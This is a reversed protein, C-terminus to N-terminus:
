YYVMTRYGTLCSGRYILSHFRSALDVFMVLSRQLLVIAMLVEVPRSVDYMKIKLDSVLLPWYTGSSAATLSASFKSLTIMSPLAPHQMHPILYLTLPIHRPTGASPTRIHCPIILCSGYLSCIIIIRHPPMFRHCKHPVLPFHNIIPVQSMWSFNFICCLHSSLLPPM